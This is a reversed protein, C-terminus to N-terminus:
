AAAASTSEEGLHPGTQHHRGAVSLRSRQVVRRRQGVQPKGDILVVRQQLGRIEQGLPLRHPSHPYACAHQEAPLSESVMKWPTTSAPDPISWTSFPTAEIPAHLAAAGRQQPDLLRQAKTPCTSGVKVPRDAVRLGALVQAIGEAPRQVPIEVLRLRDAESESGPM